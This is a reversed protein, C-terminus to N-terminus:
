KNSNVSVRVKVRVRVRFRDRHTRSVIGVSAIEVSYLGGTLVQRKIALTGVAKKYCFEKLKGTM